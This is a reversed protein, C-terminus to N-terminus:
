EPNWPLHLNFSISNPRELAAEIRGGLLATYNAVVTLGLGSHASDTRSPDKRWFPQFIRTLDDPCLTNNSNIVSLTIWSADHEARCSISGGQPTYEVANYLLNSVISYLLVRDAQLVLSNSIDFDVSLNRNAAKQRLPHWVEDVLAGITVSEPCIAIRGSQGRAVALMSAVLTEMHLAIERVDNFFATATQRDDLCNVAVDGLSRLEAIPTRLEHAVDATFRRERVFAEELRDLSENLRACIPVLEKPLGTLTFRHSLSGADIGTAERAVRELPRLGSKVTITAIMVIGIGMLALTMLLASLLIRMTRDLEFRDQAVAVYVVKAPKKTAPAANPDPADDETTPLYRLFVARGPRGDSLTINGFLPGDDTGPNHPLDHEGLSPSRFLSASKGDRVQFFHSKGAAAFDPLSEPFYELEVDGAPLQKILSCVAGAQAELAADFQRTLVTGTYFYLFSGSVCALIALGLLLEALLKRRISM